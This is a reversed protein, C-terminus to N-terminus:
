RRPKVFFESGCPASSTTSPNRALSPDSLPLPRSSVNASPLRSNTPDDPVPAGLSPLSGCPPLSYRAWMLLLPGNCASRWTGSGSAHAASNERGTPAALVGVHSRTRISDDCANAQRVNVDKATSVSTEVDSVGAIRVRSLACVIFSRGRRVRRPSTRDFHDVDLRASGQCVGSYLSPPLPHGGRGPSRSSEISSSADRRTQHSIGRM